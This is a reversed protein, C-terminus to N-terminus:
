IDKKAVVGKSDKKSSVSANSTECVAAQENAEKLAEGGGIVKSANVVILAFLLVGYLGLLDGSMNSTIGFLLCAFGLVMMFAYQSVLGSQLGSFAKIGGRVLRMIGYPGVM